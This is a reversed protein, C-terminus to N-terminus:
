SVCSINAYYCLSSMFYQMGPEWVRNQIVAGNEVECQCQCYAIPQGNSGFAFTELYYQMYYCSVTDHGTCNAYEDYLPTLVDVTNCTCSEFVLSTSHDRDNRLIGYFGGGIIPLTNVLKTCWNNCSFSCYNLSGNSSNNCTTCTSDFAPYLPGGGYDQMVSPYLDFPNVGCGNSQYVWVYNSGNQMNGNYICFNEQRYGDCYFADEYAGNPICTLGNVYIGYCQSDELPQPVSCNYNTDIVGNVYYGDSYAGDGHTSNNTDVISDIIGDNSWHYVVGSVILNDASNVAYVPANPQSSNDFSGDSYMQTGSTLISGTTYLSTHYWVPTPNDYNPGNHGYGVWSTWTISTSNGNGDFTYWLGNVQSIGTAYVGGGNGDFTYWKGNAAQHIGPSVDSYNYGSFTYWKNISSPMSPNYLLFYIGSGSGIAGSAKGDIVAVYIGSSIVAGNSLEGAGNGDFTYWTDNSQFYITGSAYSGGGAGDFTYWVNNVQYTGSAYTGNAYSANTITYWKNDYLPLQYTGETAAQWGGIGDFNVFRDMYDAYAVGSAFSGGGYGNFTYVNGNVSYTGATAYSGGGNGDFTYWSGNTAQLIGSAYVGGGNGDFTYWKDSDSALTYTGASVYSGFGTGDLAYWLGGIQYTGASTYNYNSNTSGGNGDAIEDYTGVAVPSGGIVYTAILGTALVTGAAPHESPPTYVGSTGVTGGQNSAGVAFDANGDVTGNNVTTDAFIANGSIIGSNIATGFFLGSSTVTGLNIAGDNFTAVAVIGSNVASGVFTAAVQVEGANFASGSFIGSSIVGQNSSNDLFLPVGVIATPDTSDNTSNGYFTVNGSISSM